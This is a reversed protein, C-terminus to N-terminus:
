EAGSTAAELAAEALTLKARVAAERADAKEVLNMREEYQAIVPNLRKMGEEAHRAPDKGLLELDEVYREVDELDREIDELQREAEALAEVASAHESRADAVAKEAALRPDDLSAKQPSTSAANEPSDGNSPRHVQSAERAVNETKPEVPVNRTQEVFAIAVVVSVLLGAVVLWNKPM